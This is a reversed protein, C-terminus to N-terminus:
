NCILGQRLLQVADARSPRAREDNAKLQRGFRPYKFAWFTSIGLAILGAIAFFFGFGSGPNNTVPRFSNSIVAFTVILSAVIALILQIWFSIWGIRRFRQAIQHITLKDAM